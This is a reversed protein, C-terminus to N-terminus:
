PGFYYANMRQMGKAKTAEDDSARRKRWEEGIRKMEIDAAASSALDKADIEKGRALANSMLLM